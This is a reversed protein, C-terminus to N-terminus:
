WRVPKRKINSSFRFGNKEVDSQRMKHGDTHQLRNTLLNYSRHNSFEDLLDAWVHTTMTSDPHHLKWNDVAPIARGSGEVLIRKHLENNVCDRNPLGDIDDLLVLM